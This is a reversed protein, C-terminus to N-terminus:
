CRAPCRHTKRFTERRQAQPTLDRGVTGLQEVESEEVACFRIGSIM